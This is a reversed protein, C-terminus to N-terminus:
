ILLMYYNIFGNEVDNCRYYFIKLDIVHSVINQVVKRAAQSCKWTIFDAESWPEQHGRYFSVYLKLLLITLSCTREM